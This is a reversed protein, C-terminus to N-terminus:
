KSQLIGDSTACMQRNAFLYAHTARLFLSSMDNTVAPTGEAIFQYFFDLATCRRTCRLIHRTIRANQIVYTRTEGETHTKERERQKNGGETHTHTHECKKMIYQRVNKQIRSNVVREAPNLSAMSRKQSTTIVGSASSRNGRCADKEAM